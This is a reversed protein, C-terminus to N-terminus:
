GVRRRLWVVLGLALVAWLLQGLVPVGLLILFLLGVAMLLGIATSPRLNRRRWMPDERALCVRPRADTPVLRGSVTGGCRDSREDPSSCESAAGRIPTADGPSAGTWEPLAIVSAGSRSAAADRLRWATAARRREVRVFTNCAAETGAGPVEPESLARPQQFLRKCNQLSSWITV